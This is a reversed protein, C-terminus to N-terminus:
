EEKLIKAATLGKFVLNAALAGVVGQILNAPVSLLAPGPGYLFIEFIYYGLAMWVGAILTSILRYKEGLKSKILSAAIFGELGKIVFSAPAYLTYGLFIDALFSGIGGVLFAWKGGLMMASIFIVMDGLNVYGNGGVIPIMIVITMIVTLAILISVKTITKTRDERM